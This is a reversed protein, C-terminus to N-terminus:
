VAGAGPPQSGIRLSVPFFPFLVLLTRYRDGIILLLYAESTRVLRQRAVATSARSIHRVDPRNHELHPRRQFFKVLALVLVLIVAIACISARARKARRVWGSSCVQEPLHFVNYHSLDRRRWLPKPNNRIHYNSVGQVCRLLLRHDACRGM